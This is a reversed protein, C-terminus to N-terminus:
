FDWETYGHEELYKKREAEEEKAQQEAEKQEREKCWKELEENEKKVKEMYKIYKKISDNVEKLSIYYHGECLLKAGNKVPEYHDCVRSNASYDNEHYPCDKEGWYSCGNWDLYEDIYNNNRYELYDEIDDLDDDDFDSVYSWHGKMHYKAYKCNACCEKESPKPIISLDNIHNNKQAIPLGISIIESARKKTMCVDCGNFENYWDYLEKIMDKPLGSNFKSIFWLAKKQKYTVTEEM